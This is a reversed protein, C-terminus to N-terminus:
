GVVNEIVRVIMGFFNTIIKAMYNVIPLTPDIISMWYLPVAHLVSRILTLKAGPSLIKRKWGQLKAQMKNVM